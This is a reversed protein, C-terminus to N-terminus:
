RIRVGVRPLGVYVGTNWYPAYSYVAPAVPAAPAYVTPYSYYYPATWYGGGVVPRAVVRVHPPAATATKTNAAFLMVTGVIGAVLLKKASMATEKSRTPPNPDIM